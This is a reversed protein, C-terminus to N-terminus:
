AGESTPRPLAKVIEHALHLNNQVVDLIASRGLQDDDHGDTIHLMKTLLIANNALCDITELVTKPQIIIAALSPEPM